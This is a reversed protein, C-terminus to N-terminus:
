ARLGPAQILSVVRLFLPIGVIPYWWEPDGKEKAKCWSAVFGVAATDVMCTRDSSLSIAMFHPKSTPREWCHALTTNCQIYWYPVGADGLPNAAIEARVMAQTALRAVRGQGPKHGAKRSSAKHVTRRVGMRAEALTIMVMMMMM